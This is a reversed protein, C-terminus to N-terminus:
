GQVLPGYAVNELVSRRPLLAPDQQLLGIGRRHVPVAALDRGHLRITGATPRDLGAICRLLTTKGSGNPGLLTLFEEPGLDLDIGHLVEREGRRARLREIRLVPEPM